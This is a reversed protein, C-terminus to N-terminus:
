AAWGSSPSPPGSCPWRAAWGCRCARAMIRSDARGPHPHYCLDLPPTPHAPLPAHLATCHLALPPLALPALMPRRVCARVQGHQTGTSGYMVAPVGVHTSSGTGVFTMAGTMSQTANRQMAHLSFSFSHTLIILHVSLRVSRIFHLCVPLAHMHLLSTSAQRGEDSVMYGPGSFMVYTAGQEAMVGAGLANYMGAGFSAFVAFAQEQTVGTSILAGAGTCFSGMGMFNMVVGVYRFDVGTLVTVGGGTFLVMGAVAMSMAISQWQFTTFTVVTTGSLTAVNWGASAYNSLLMTTTFTCGTFFVNGAVVQTIFPLCWM